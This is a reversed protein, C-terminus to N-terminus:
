NQGSHNDFYGESYASSPLYELLPKLLQAIGIQIDIDCGRFKMCVTQCLTLNSLNIKDRLQRLQVGM